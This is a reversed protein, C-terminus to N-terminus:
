AGAFSLIFREVANRVKSSGSKVAHDAESLRKCALRLSEDSSQKVQRMFEEQKRYWVRLQRCIEAQSLGSSLMVRGKRLQRVHWALLGIITYEASRDQELIREMLQMAGATDAKILADIMEFASLERNRGVLAEVDEITIKRRDGVYLSLKELEEALTNLSEGAM